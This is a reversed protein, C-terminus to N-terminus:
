TRVSQGCREDLSNGLSTVLWAGSDVADARGEGADPVVQDEEIAGKLGFYGEGLGLLAAFEEGGEEALGGDDAGLGQEVALLDYLEQGRQFLCFAADDVEEEGESAQGRVQDHVVAELGVDIGEGRRVKRTGHDDLEALTRIHREDGGVKGVEERENVLDHAHERFIDLRGLEGSEVAELGHLSHRSLADFRQHGIGLVCLGLHRGHEVQHEVRVSLLALDRRRFIVHDSISRQHDSRTRVRARICQGNYEEM